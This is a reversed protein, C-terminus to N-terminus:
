CINDAIVELSIAFIHMNACEPLQITDIGKNCCPLRIAYLYAKEKGIVIGNANTDVKELVISTDNDIIENYNPVWDNLTFKMKQHLGDCYNIEIEDICNGYESCGLIMVSYCIEERIEILQKACSINDMDLGTSYNLKFKMGVNKLEYDQSISESIFYEGNCNLDANRIIEDGIGINNMHKNINLCKVIVNNKDNKVSFDKDNRNGYELNGKIISITRSIIEEEDSIIESMKKSIYKGIDYEKTSFVKKLFMLRMMDWKQVIFEMECVVDKLRYIDYYKNFFNLLACFRVRNHVISKLVVNLEINDQMQDISLSNKDCYQIIESNIDFSNQIHATLIKMSGLWKKSKAEKLKECFLDLVDFNNIALKNIINYSIYAENFEEESLIADKKDYYPDLCIFKKEKPLWDIILIMHSGNEVVHYRWDWPCHFGKVEVLIPIKNNIHKKISQSAVSTEENYAVVELGAYKKLNELICDDFIIKSGISSKNRKDLEFGNKLVDMYMLEYDRNVYEAYTAICDDFCFSSTDRNKLRPIQKIIM